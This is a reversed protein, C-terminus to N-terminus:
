KKFIEVLGDFKKMATKTVQCGRCYGREYPEDLDDDFLKVGCNLCHEDEDKEQPSRFQKWYDHNITM